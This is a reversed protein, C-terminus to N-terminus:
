DHFRDDFLPKGTGLDIMMQASMALDARLTARFWTQRPHYWPLQQVHLGATACVDAVEDPTFTVCKPYIWGVSDAGAAMNQAGKNDPTVITFLYQGDPTLSRAAAKLSTLLADQGTHSYISQAVIYNISGAAVDALQFDDETLFRPSKLRILDAGLEHEIAHQWLWPNPEVGTYRGPMLYNLIYRGTRLSGCGIDVVHHEERLGLSTLLRFQTAGMFDYQTPPGVYARYHDGGPRLTKSLAIDHELATTKDSM